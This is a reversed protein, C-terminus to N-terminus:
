ATAEDWHKVRVKVTEIDHKCVGAKAILKYDCIDCRVCEKFDIAPGRIAGTPCAHECVKCVDCQQVRKIRFPSVLSVVGLSAGLPCAYRCYFRPIFVAGLLFGAAIVWLVMSRSIYFVTGFPEFYQFLSLDSYALAMLVLFALIAYKLYIALDHVAQPVQYRFQKPVIRTIFDQLAGFPCLSSCFIRGWLLATVVTFVIVILLPLDNLFLSPGLKIGNTIHSVSVFGGDMWGLYILTVTLAAWRLMEKKMVFATMVLACIFLVAFVESLPASDLLETWVTEEPFQFREADNESPPILEPAIPGGESLALALEPVQYAMEHIGGFEGVVGETTYLISFPEALDLEPMLVIAGAFRTRDKIKGADASGAYVFRRREVPYVEDGQKIALREQRFPQSSNGDIGVLLMKGERSRNSADRDARSYDDIGLMLEGLGDHGIFALSLHLETLDPQIVLMEKVLGSEIMDDWSQDEYVRLAVADGSTAAVYDSDPLYSHAMKRASDRVGRAVAWSTITARSIGDIDRGVRFDETINKRSFQQPFYESNIFDGRISKYSEIYHLVEIGTLTGQLDIGVLVDIPASYGVEEPPYDPTEFLYGVLEADTSGAEGKYGRYVPPNGEKLSFSDADRMVSKLVEENVAIPAQGHAVTMLAFLGLASVLRGSQSTPKPSHDCYGRLAQKLSLM